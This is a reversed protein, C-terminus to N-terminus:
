YNTSIPKVNTFFDRESSPDSDVLGADFSFSGTVLPVQGVFIVAVKGPETRVMGTYDCTILAAYSQGSM